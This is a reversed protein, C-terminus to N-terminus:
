PVEQASSLMNMIWVPIDFGYAVLVAAIASLLGVLAKGEPSMKKKPKPRPM